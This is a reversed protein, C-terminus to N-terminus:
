VPELLALGGVVKVQRQGLNRKQFEDVAQRVQPQNPKYDHVAVRIGPRMQEAFRLAAATAEYTHDGDYFFAGFKRLDLRPLVDRFDGAVLTVKHSAHKDILNQWAAPFTGGRGAFSDGKFHDVSVVHEATAALAVTSRAKWTGVELIVRGAAMEQLAEGEKKFLWGHIKQWADRDPAPRCDNIDYGLRSFDDWYFRLVQDISENDYSAPEKKSRNKSRNLHPLDPLGYEQQLQAWDQGITEVHCIRDPRGQGRAQYRFLLLTQPAWHRDVTRDSQSTVWAVWERLTADTPLPCDGKLRKALGTQVKDHYASRLRTLPNRVFTFTLKPKWAAPIEEWHRHEHMGSGTVQGFGDAELLAAKISCCAAKPIELYEVGCRLSAFRGM